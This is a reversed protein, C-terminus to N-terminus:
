LSEPLNIKGKMYLKCAGKIMVRDGLLKCILEGGRESAQVAHISSKKLRAAWFPTLVCHISGTVPDEPIGFSPLFYRSVCDSRAGPSSAVVGYPHLEKLKDLNPQCTLVESEDEYIVYYNPDEHSVYVDKVEQLGMKLADPIENVAEYAIAPFDLTVLGNELFSERSVRLEGSLSNFRIQNEKIGLENFLVFASALTAHGCLPVEHKPTFWRIHYKDNLPVFFATEALNNEAAISQLINEPLWENLPIVAAPNGSFLKNAFADVQYIDLQM